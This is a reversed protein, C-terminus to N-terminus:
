QLFKAEIDEIDIWTQFDENFKQFLFRISLDFLGKAKEKLKTSASSFSFAFFSSDKFTVLYKGTM